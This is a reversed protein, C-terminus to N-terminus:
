PKHQAPTKAKQKKKGNTKEPKARGVGERPGAAANFGAKQGERVYTAPANKHLKPNIGTGAQKQGNIFIVGTKPDRYWQQRFREPLEIHGWDPSGNLTIRMDDRTVLHGAATPAISFYDAAREFYAHYEAKDPLIKESWKGNADVTKDYIRFDLAQGWQHHSQAKSGNANSNGAGQAANQEGVTRYGSNWAVEFTKHGIQKGTRDFICNRPDNDFMFKAECAMIALKPNVEMLLAVSQDNFGVEILRRKVEAPSPLPWNNMIDQKVDGGGRAANLNAFQSKPENPM